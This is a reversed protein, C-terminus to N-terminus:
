SGAMRRSRSSRMESIGMTPLAVCVYNRLVACSVSAFAMLLSSSLPTANSSRTRDPAECSGFSLDLVTHRRIINLNGIKVYRCLCHHFHRIPICMLDPQPGLGLEDVALIENLLNKLMKQVPRLNHNVLLIIREPVRRLLMEEATCVDVKLAQRILDFDVLREWDCAILTSRHRVISIQVRKYM